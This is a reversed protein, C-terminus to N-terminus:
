HRCERSIEAGLRKSKKTVSAIAKAAFGSFLPLFIGGVQIIACMAVVCEATMPMFVGIVDGKGLGLKRLANAAKNVERRLEGYTLTRVKGEEGEAIVAVHGENPTDQWKDLMSATINMKGGVCWRPRQIGGSLDAVQAYPTDFVIGMERLMTDWFWAVGDPVATSRRMLEDFSALGHRDMFTKLHSNAILEASPRWVIENGFDTHM